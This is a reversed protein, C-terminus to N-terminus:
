ANLSEIVNARTPAPLDHKTQSMSAKERRDAEEGAPLRRASVLTEVAQNGGPSGPLTLCAYLM